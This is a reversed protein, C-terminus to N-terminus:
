IGEVNIATILWAGNEKKLTLGVTVSGAPASAVIPYAEATDGKITIAMNALDIKGNDVFGSDMGQKLIDKAAAKDGVEPHHFNESVTAMLADINKALLADTFSKATATILEQDTPGKPGTACGALVSAVFVMMIM